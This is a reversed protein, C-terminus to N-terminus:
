SIGRTADVASADLPSGPFLSRAGRPGCPSVETLRPRGLEARRVNM